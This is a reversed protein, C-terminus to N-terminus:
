RLELIKHNYIKVTYTKGVDFRDYLDRNVIFKEYSITKVIYLDGETYKEGITIKSIEGVNSTLAYDVGALIIIILIMIGLIRLM